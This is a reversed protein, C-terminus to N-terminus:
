ALELIALGAGSTSTRWKGILVNGSATDSFTGDAITVYAPTGAGVAEKAQVVIPGKTRVAVNDGKAYKNLAKTHDLETVGVFVAGAEAVKVGLDAAGQFAAKGFGIGDTTEAIRTLTDFSAGNPVMGEILAIHYQNYNTQVSPM